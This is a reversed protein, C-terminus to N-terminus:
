RVYNLGLLFDNKVAALFEIETLFTRERHESKEHNQCLLYQSVRVTVYVVCPWVRACVSVYQVAKHIM